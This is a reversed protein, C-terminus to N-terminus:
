PIKLLDMKFINFFYLANQTEHNSISIRNKQSIKQVKLPLTKLNQSNDKVTKATAFFFLGMLSSYSLKTNVYQM